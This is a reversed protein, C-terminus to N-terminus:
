KPPQINPALGRASKRLRLAESQRGLSELLDAANELAVAGLREGGTPLDVALDIWDLANALDDQGQPMGRLQHYRRIRTALAQEFETAPQAASKEANSNTQFVDRWAILEPTKWPETDLWAHLEELDQGSAQWLAATYVSFAFPPKHQDWNVRRLADLESRASKADFFLPWLLPALGMHVDEARLDFVLLDLDTPASDEALRLFQIWPLVAREPQATALYYRFLAGQVWLRSTSNIQALSDRHSEAWEGAQRWDKRKIRAQLRFWPEGLTSQFERWTIAEPCDAPIELIEDWGVTVGTKLRLGTRDSTEIHSLPIRRLDRSILFIETAPHPPVTEQAPLRAWTWLAALWVGCWAAPTRRLSFFFPKSGRRMDPAGCDSSGHDVIPEEWHWTM